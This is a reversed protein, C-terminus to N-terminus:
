RAAPPGRVLGLARLAANGNTRPAKTATNSASSRGLRVLEPQRQIGEVSALSRRAQTCARRVMSLVASVQSARINVASYAPRNSKNRGPRAAHRSGSGSPAGRIM